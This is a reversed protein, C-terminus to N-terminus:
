SYLILLLIELEKAQGAENLISIDASFIKHLLDYITILLTLIIMNQARIIDKFLNKTSIRVSIKEQGVKSFPTDKVLDYFHGTFAKRITLISKHRSSIFKPHDRLRVVFDNSVLSALVLYRAM